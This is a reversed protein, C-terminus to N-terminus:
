PTLGSVFWARVQNLGIQRLGALILAAVGFGLASALVNMAFPPLKM